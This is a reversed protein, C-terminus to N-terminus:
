RDPDELAEEFLRRWHAPDSVPPASAAASAQQLAVEGMQHVLRQLHDCVAPSSDVVGSWLAVSRIWMVYTDDFLAFTHPGPTPLLQLGGGASWVEDLLRLNDRILDPDYHRRVVSLERRVSAENFFIVCERDEGAPERLSRIFDMIGNFFDDEFGLRRRPGFFVVPTDAGLYIRRRADRVLKGAEEYFSRRDPLPRSRRRYDGFVESLVSAKLSRALEVATDFRRGFSREYMREALPNLSVGREAARLFLLLPTGIEAALEIEQEVFRYTEEASDEEGPRLGEELILVVLDAQRLQALWEERETSAIWHDMEVLIPQMHIERIAEEAAARDERLRNKSSVFVKLQTPLDLEPM